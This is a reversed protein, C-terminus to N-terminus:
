ESVPFDRVTFVQLLAVYLHREFVAAEDHFIEVTHQRDIRLGNGRDERRPLHVGPWRCRLRQAAVSSSERISAKRLSGAFWTVSESRIARRCPWIGGSSSRKCFSASSELSPEHARNRLGQARQVSRGPVAVAEVRKMAQQLRLRVPQREPAHRSLFDVIAAEEIDVVQNAQAHFIRQDERLGVLEDALEQAFAEDRSQADIM